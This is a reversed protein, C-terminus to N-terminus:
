GQRGRMGRRTATSACQRAPVILGWALEAPDCLMPLPQFKIEFRLRVASQASPLSRIRALIGL